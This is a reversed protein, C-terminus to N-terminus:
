GNNGGLHHPAVGEGFIKGLVAVTWMKKPPPSFFIPLATARLGWDSCITPKFGQKQVHWQPDARNACQRVKCDM